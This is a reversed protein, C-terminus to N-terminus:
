VAEPRAVLYPQILDRLQAEAAGGIPGVRLLLRPDGDAAGVLVDAHGALLFPMVPKLARGFGASRRYFLYLNGEPTSSCSVEMDVELSTNEPHEWRAL